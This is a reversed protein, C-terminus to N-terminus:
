SRRFVMSAVVGLERRLCCGDEAAREKENAIVVAEMTQFRPKQVQNGRRVMKEPPAAPLIVSGSFKSSSRKASRHTNGKGKGEDRDCSMSMAGAPIVVVFRCCLERLGRWLRWGQHGVGYGVVVVVCPCARILVSAMISLHILLILFIVVVNIEVQTIVAGGV